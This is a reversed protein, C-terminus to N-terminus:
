VSSKTDADKNEEKKKLYFKLLNLWRKFFSCVKCKM